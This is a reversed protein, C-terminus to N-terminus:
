VKIEGDPTVFGKMIREVSGKDTRSHFMETMRTEAKKTHGYYANGEHEELLFLLINECNKM